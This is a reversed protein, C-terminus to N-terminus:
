DYESSCVVAGGKTPKAIPALMEEALSAEGYGYSNFAPLARTFITAGLM